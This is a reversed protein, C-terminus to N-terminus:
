VADLYWLLVQSAEEWGRAVVCYNGADTLAKRMARQAPSEVGARKGREASRKLEIYCAGFDATRWPLCVDPVGAKVGEAKLKGATAKSRKGGNPIAYLVRLEPHANSQLAAWRFLAVQDHHESM